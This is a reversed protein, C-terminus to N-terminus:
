QMIIPHHDTKNQIPSGDFMKKRSTKSSVNWYKLSDNRFKKCDFFMHDMNSVNSVNWSDLSQNFNTCRHFMSEMNTVKSVDWKNLGQIYLDCWLFMQKMNTVNSVDWKSLDIRRNDVKEIQAFVGEMNSVNTVCWDNIPGFVSQAFVPTLINRGGNFYLQVAPQITDNDFSTFQKKSLVFYNCVLKLERLEDENEYEDNKAVNRNGYKKLLERLKPFILPDIENEFRTEMPGGKTAIKLNFQDSANLWDEHAMESFLNLEYLNCPQATAPKLKKNKDHKISRLVSKFSNMHPTPDSVTMLKNKSPKLTNHNGTPPDSTTQLKFQLRKGSGGKHYNIITPHFAQNNQLPSDMFMNNRSTESSIKWEKLSQNFYLCKVGKSM